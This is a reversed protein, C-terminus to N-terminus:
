LEKYFIGKKIIQKIYFFPNKIKKGFCHKYLAGLFTTALKEIPGALHCKKCLGTKHMAVGSDLNLYIFTL